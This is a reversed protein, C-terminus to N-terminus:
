GGSSVRVITRPQLLDLAELLKAVLPMLEVLKNSRSQLKVIAMPLAALNQEYEMGADLTILADFGDAAAQALLEGNRLGSWGQYAVTFVDHGALFHRLDHPLNEDLLVKM